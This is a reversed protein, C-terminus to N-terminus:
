KSALSSGICMDVELPVKMCFDKNLVHFPNMMLEKVLEAATEANEKPGELVFEDHVQMVLAFGLKALEEDQWMRLMAFTAIDAASGQIMFNMAARKSRAKYEQDVDEQQLFPFNRWRGILSVARGHLKTDKEVYKMYERVEPKTAFWRDILLLADGETIDLLEALSRAGMGYLVAFNVTKAQNREKGYAAKVTPVGATSSGSSMCVRGSSIAEAIHPFLEVAVESHYDGGDQFKSIMSECLSMHALVRLELQSYDAIIFVKGPGAVFADRIGYKDQSARPLNQLNPSRCCLRGTSTDPQWSPHIRDRQLGRERLPRAFFSILGKIKSADSLARVGDCVAEATEEEYGKELMQKYVEGKPKSLDALAKRATTPWGANTHDKAKASPTLELSNVSFAKKGSKQKSPGSVSFRRHRPLMQEEVKSNQSGGFLLTQIQTASGINVLDLDPNLLEGSETKVGAVAHMFDQEHSALDLSASKEIASLKQVDIGVGAREMDILCESVLAMHEAYFQWMTKGTRKQVSSSHGAPQKKLERLVEPDRLLDRISRQPISSCWDRAELEARLREFLKYTLEADRAAYRAFENFHRPTDHAQQAASASVGYLQSFTPCKEEVLNFHTALDKLQYSKAATSAAAEENQQQKEEDEKQEAQQELSECEAATTESSNQQSTWLGEDVAEGGFRVEAVEIKSASKVAAALASSKKSRVQGEWSSLSTDWLRAMRLTDGLFGQVEIGHRSFLHREFNYNHFVKRHRGDEFYDKFYRTLLGECPGSNDIFLHPGNGFDVDDGCYCTACIIRGHHVTTQALWRSGLEVDVVETDWAHPRDRLSCLEKLARRASAEDTVITIGELQVRSRFAGPELSCDELPQDQQDEALSEPLESDLSQLFLPGTDFSSHGADSQVQSLSSFQVQGPHTRGKHGRAALTSAHRHHIRTRPLLSRALARM